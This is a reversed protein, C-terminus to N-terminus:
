GRLPRVRDVLRAGPRGRDCCLWGVRTPRAGFIVLNRADRGDAELLGGDTRQGGALSDRLGAGAVDLATV